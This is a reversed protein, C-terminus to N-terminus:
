AKPRPTAKRVQWPTIDGDRRVPVPMQRQLREEPRFRSKLTEDALQALSGFGATEGVKRSSRSNRTAEPEPFQWNQIFSSVEPDILPRNQWRKQM